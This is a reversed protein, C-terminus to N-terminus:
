WDPRRHRSLVDRAAASPLYPRDALLRQAEAVAADRSYTGAVPATEHRVPVADVVGLRWGEAEGVASWHLELGWGYRLAPFPILRNAAVRAFATLPGIEVFRTRRLLSAPRRRTVRWAAHSMLTQAPQALQLDYHEILALFHDLFRPPLDIDDDVVLTWDPISGSRSELLANLNEFKGGRLHTLRTPAALAPDADAMSGVVVEVRHRTRGLEALADPLRSSPRYVSLVLVDRVPTAAALRDLAPGVRQLRQVVELARDGVTRWTRQRVGAVHGSEGSLFTAPDPLATV